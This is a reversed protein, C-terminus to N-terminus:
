ARGEGSRNPREPCDSSGAASAERLRAPHEQLEIQQLRADKRAPRGSRASRAVTPTSAWTGGIRVQEPSLSWGRSAPISRATMGADSACGEAAPHDDGVAYHPYLERERQPALHDGGEDVRPADKVQGKDYSVPIDDRHVTAGAPPVFPQVAGFMGMRVTVWEPQGTRDDLFVQGIKGIKVGGSDLVSGGDQLLARVDESNM